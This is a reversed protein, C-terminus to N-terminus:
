KSVGIRPLSILLCRLKGMYDKKNLVKVWAILYPYFLIKGIGFVWGYSRNLWTRLLFLVHILHGLLSVLSLVFALWFQVHRGHCLGHLM